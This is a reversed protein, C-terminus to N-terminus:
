LLHEKRLLDIADQVQYAKLTKDPHPEHLFLTAGTEPHVFKRGSGGAKELKFSLSAMLTMLEQWTFDKPKSALRKLAKQLRSM